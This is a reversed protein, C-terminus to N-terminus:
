FRYSIDITLGTLGFKNGDAAEKLSYNIGNHIEYPTVDAKQYGGRVGAEIGWRHTLLLYYGVALGGQFYTGTHNCAKRQVNFDGLQGYVGVYFGAYHHHGRLWCRPELRYATVGWHESRGFDFDAYTGSLVASWRNAFFLETALNPMFTTREPKPTIGAWGLLNTKIGFLPHFARLRAARIENQQERQQELERQQEAELLAQVKRERDTALSDELARLRNEAWAAKSRELALIKEFETDSMKRQYRKEIIRRLDYEVKVEVRRLKPFLEEQMERYPDGGDLKMLLSERGDFIGVRDIIAMVEERWSYTSAEILKRLTEWDEAVYDLAVPYRAGLQYERDMYQKMGNVRELSLRENAAYTGEISCYGTLQVSQVYILTDAFARRIFADLFTLEASNNGFEREVRSSGQRYALYCNLSDSGNRIAHRYASDGLLTEEKQQGVAPLCFALLCLGLLIHLKYRM